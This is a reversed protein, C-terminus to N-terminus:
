TQAPEPQTNTLLDHVAPPWPYSGPKLTFTAHPAERPSLSVVGPSWECIVCLRTWGLRRAVTVATAGGEVILHINDHGSSVHYAVEALAAAVATADAPDPSDVRAPFAAAVGDAALKARLSEAWQAIDGKALRDHPHGPGFAAALLHQASAATTGSVLLTPAGPARPAGHSEVPDVFDRNRQLVATFFAASGAALTSDDLCSAWAALDEASAADGAAIGRVPLAEGRRLSVVPRLGGDGLLAAVEDTRAPHHPDRAFDTKHLPIGNIRYRGGEISRGLVPNAPVVLARAFGLCEAAAGLEAAVPGRLVSDIKKFLLPGSGDLQRLASLCEAVRRAAKEGNLLRTDTDVVLVDTDGAPQGADLCVEAALGRRHVVAAVECAGTLDDAM